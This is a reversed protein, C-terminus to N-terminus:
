HIHGHPDHIELETLPTTFPKVTVPNGTIHLCVENAVFPSSDQIYFSRSEAESLGILELGFKKKFGLRLEEWFDYKKDKADFCTKYLLKLDDNISKTKYTTEMDWIILDKRHVGKEKMFTCSSLLFLIFVISRIL